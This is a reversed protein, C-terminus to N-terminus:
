GAHYCFTRTGQNKFSKLDGYSPVDGLYGQEVFHWMIVNVVVGSLKFTDISSTKL